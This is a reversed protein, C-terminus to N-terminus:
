QLKSPGNFSDFTLLFLNHCDKSICVVSKIFNITLVNSFDYIQFIYISKKLYNASNKSM